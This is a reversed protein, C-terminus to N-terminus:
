ASEATRLDGKKAQIQSRSAWNSLVTPYISIARPRVAQDSLRSLVIQANATAARDVLDDDVVAQRIARSLGAIDDVDLLFGNSGNSIWEAIPELRSHIPLAGLSMAEVLSGPLGDNVTMAIFARSQRVLDLIQSHQPLRPVSEIDLGTLDRLRHLWAELEPGVQLARIRYGKLIDACGLLAYIIHLARGVPDGDSIDRGKLLLMRRQSPMSVDNEGPWTVGGFAPLRELTTGQFGFRRALLEDRACESIHFDVQSLVASVEPAHLPDQGYFDLDAGWSSYIWPISVRAGLIQKALAIPLARNEWNVCLGLSHVIDPKVSDLIAATLTALEERTSAPPLRVFQMGAPVVVDGCAYLTGFNLDPTPTGCSKSASFIHIDWGQDQFQKIWRVAHVSGPEAIFLIRM